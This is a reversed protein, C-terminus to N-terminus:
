SHTPCSEEERRRSYPGRLESPLEEVSEYGKVFDEEQAQWHFFALEDCIANRLEKTPTRYLTMDGEVYYLLDYKGEHTRFFVIVLPWSGLDWGDKGWSSVVNWHRQTAKGIVEYGGFSSISELYPDVAIRYQQLEPKM